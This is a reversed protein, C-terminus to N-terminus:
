CVDRVQLNKRFLNETDELRKQAEKRTVGHRTTVTWSPMSHIGILFLAVIVFVQNLTFNYATVMYAELKILFSSEKNM